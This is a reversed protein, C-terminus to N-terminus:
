GLRGHKIIAQNLVSEYGEQYLTNIIDLKSDYVRSITNPPVVLTKKFDSYIEKYWKSESMNSNKISINKGTLSTLMSGLDNFLTDFRYIHLKIIDTEYLGIKKEQNYEFDELNFQLERCIAHIAEPFGILSQNNLESIYQEHLQEITYRYIITESEHELEKVRIPRTGYGQFFSSAHREMPERFVTIVNLKRNNKILYSELYEQFEGKKLGINNERIDSRINHCHSCMFGNSKLTNTLTQTGTKHSSFVLYDLNLLIETFIM